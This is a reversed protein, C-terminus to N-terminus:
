TVIQHQFVLQKKYFAMKLRGIKGAAVLEKKGITSTLIEQEMLNEM